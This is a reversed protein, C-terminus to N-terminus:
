IYFEYLVYILSIYIPNFWCGIIVHSLKKVQSGGVRHLFKYKVALRYTVQSKIMLGALIIILVATLNSGM